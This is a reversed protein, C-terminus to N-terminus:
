KVHKWTKFSLVCYVTNFTVGYIEALKQIAVQEEAHRKRIESVQQETLKACRQRTGRVQTGHNISDRKNSRHTDWRLNDLSNNEPNGDNHCGELGDPCPGVFTELVIRHIPIIRSKRDTTRVSVAYYGIKLKYPTCMKIPGRVRGLNSVQYELNSPYPKWVEIMKGDM